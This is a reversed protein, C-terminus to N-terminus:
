AAGTRPKKRKWIVSDVIYHHFNITMYVISSISIATYGQIISSSIEVFGYFIFTVILCFIIYYIFQGNQSITSIFKHNDDIGGQFKNNNQMWVFMIYQANHWINLILWGANIDETLLYGFSFIAHHSLVYLVYPLSLNNQRYRVIWTYFQYLIAAIAVVLFFAFVAYPVYFTKVDLFLFTEHGQYSRYLIGALPLLYIAYTDIDFSSRNKVGSKHMYYRSIGYSQRTYHFWQWYLYISAIAWSGVGISIATVAVVVLVPLYFVLFKHELASKLSFAIRTYTSIVHHYGLLALNATLVISFLAPNGNSIIGLCIALIPIFFIFPIDFYHRFAPRNIFAKDTM